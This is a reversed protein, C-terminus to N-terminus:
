GAGRDVAYAAVAAVVVAVAIATASLGIIGNTFVSWSTDRKDSALFLRADGRSNAVRSFFYRALPM